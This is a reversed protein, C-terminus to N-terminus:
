WHTSGKSWFPLLYAFHRRPRPLQRTQVIKRTHRESIGSVQNSCIVCFPSSTQKTKKKKESKRVSFVPLNQPGESVWDFTQERNWSQSPLTTWGLVCIDSFAKYPAIRHSIRYSFVYVLIHKCEGTVSIYKTVNTQALLCTLHCYELSQIIAIFVSAYVLCTTIVPIHGGFYLKSM